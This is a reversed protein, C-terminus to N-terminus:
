FSKKKVQKIAKPNEEPFSLKLLTCYGETESDYSGVLKSIDFYSMYNQTSKSPETNALNWAEDPDAGLTVYYDQLSRMKERFNKIQSQTVYFLENMEFCTELLIFTEMVSKLQFTPTEDQIIRELKSLAEKAGEYGNSILDEFILKAADINKEVGEGGEGYIKALHYQSPEHGLDAGTKYLLVAKPLNQPVNFRPTGFQDPQEGLEYINGALELAVHLEEKIPEALWKLANKSNQPLAYDNGSAYDPDELGHFLFWAVRFQSYVHGQDALSRWSSYALIDTLEDSRWMESIQNSQEDLVKSSQPPPSTQQEKFIKGPNALNYIAGEHDREAAAEYYQIASGVNEQGFKGTALMVGANFLADPVGAQSAEVYYEWAAEYDQSVGHGNEYMEGIKNLAYGNGQDASLKHWRMAAEYDQAVGKGDHYLSALGYQSLLEGEEALPAWIKLATLYDGKEYSMYGTDFDTSWSPLSFLSLCVILIRYLNQM